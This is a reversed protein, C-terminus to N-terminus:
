LRRLARITAVVSAFSTPTTQLFHSDTAIFHCFGGLFWSKLSKLRLLRNFFVAIVMIQLYARMANHLCKARAVYRLTGAPLPASAGSGM